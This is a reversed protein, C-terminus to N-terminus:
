AVRLSVQVQNRGERKARYLAEDARVLADDLSEGPCTAAVGISVTLGRGLEPISAWDAQEIALRLREAGRRAAPLDEAPMIAVFEEGGYRALLTDHRLHSRMTSAALRLAEDGVAHGADDNVAKFHDLDLILVAVFHGRAHEAGLMAPARERVARRTLLGTLEDTTARSHLQQHLRSNVQSLLLSAFVIPLVGYTAALLPGIALPMYMLDIRAPGEYALTFALRMWSSAAVLLLVWGFVREIATRPSAIFGQGMWAMLTSTAALAIAFALGLVSLGADLALMMTAALTAVAAACTGPRLNRGQLQGIGRSMLVVAFLTGFTLSFQAAPHSAADGLSAPMLGIGLTVLAWGCLGLARRLRADDTRALRLHGAPERRREAALASVGCNLYATLVDIQFM